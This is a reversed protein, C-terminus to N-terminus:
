VSYLQQICISCSPRADPRTKDKGVSCSCPQPSRWQRDRKARRCWYMRVTLCRLRIWKRSHPLLCPATVCALDALRPRACDADWRGGTGRPRAFTDIDTSRTSHEDVYSLCSFTVTVPRAIGYGFSPRQQQGICDCDCNCHVCPPTDQQYELVLRASQGSVYGILDAM